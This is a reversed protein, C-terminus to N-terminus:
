SSPGLPPRSLPVPGTPAVAATVLRDVFRYLLGFIWAKLSVYGPKRERGHWALAPTREVLEDSTVGDEDLDGVAAISAIEQRAAEHLESVM